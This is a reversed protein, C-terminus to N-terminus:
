EGTIGEKKLAEQLIVLGRQIRKKVTEDPLKLLLSIEKASYEYVLKLTLIDSYISPLAKICEVIKSCNYSELSDTQSNSIFDDVDIDAYSKKTEKSLMTLAVNRIIIVVFAKTQPCIEQNIKSINKAIRIFAEQLADESLKDDKLINFAVYKMTYRYAYYLKEFKSKEEPTDILSLYILM